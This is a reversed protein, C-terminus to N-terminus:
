SFYKRRIQSMKTLEKDKALHWVRYEAEDYFLDSSSPVSPGNFKRGPKYSSVEENKFIEMVKTIQASRDKKSHSKGVLDLDFFDVVKEEMKVGIDAARNIRHANKENLNVGLCRFAGKLYRNLHENRQDRAFKMSKGNRGAVINWLYRHSFQPNPHSLIVSKFSAISTAYNKHGTGHITKLLNKQILYSNLGNGEKISDLMMHFLGLFSFLSRAYSNKLDPKSNEKIHSEPKNCPKDVPNKEVVVSQTEEVTKGTTQRLFKEHPYFPPLNKVEEPNKKCERYESDVSIIFNRILLRLLGQKKSQDKETRVSEPTADQELNKVKLFKRLFEGVQAIFIDSFFSRFAYYTDKGKKNELKPNLLKLLRSLSTAEEINDKDAHLDLVVDTLMFMFHLLEHRGEIFGLKDRMSGNDLLALQASRASKETKQDGSFITPYIPVNQGEENQAVPCLDDTLKTIVKSIGPLTSETECVLPGTYVKVEKDMLSSYQHEIRMIKLDPLVDPWNNAVLNILLQVYDELLHEREDETLGIRKEFDINLLNRDQNRDSIEKADIIDEFVVSSCWHLSNDKQGMLYESSNVTIDINDYSVDYLKPRDDLHTEIAKEIDNRHEEILKLVYLDAAPIEPKRVTEHLEEGLEGISPIYKDDTFKVALKVECKVRELMQKRRFWTEIEEKRDKIDKLFHKGIEDQDARISMSVMSLGLRHLLQLAQKGTSNLKFFEGLVRQVVNVKQSRSFSSIAVVTLLRQKLYKKQNQWGDVKVGVGFCIKSISDMLELGGAVRCKNLVDDFNFESLGEIESLLNPNRLPCEESAIFLDLQKSIKNIIYERIEDKLLVSECMKSVASSKYNSEQSRVLNSTIEIIDKNSSYRTSEVKNGEDDLFEIKIQTVTQNRPKPTQKQEPTCPDYLPSSNQSPLFDLLPHLPSISSSSQEKKEMGQSSLSSLPQSSLMGSLSSPTGPGEKATPPTPSISSVQSWKPKKAPSESFLDEDSSMM